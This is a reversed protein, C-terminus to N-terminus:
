NSESKKEWGLLPMNVNSVVTYNIGRRSLENSIMRLIYNTIMRWHPGQAKYSCICASDKILIAIDEDLPELVITLTQGEKLTSTDFRSFSIHELGLTECLIYLDEMNFHPDVSKAVFFAETNGEFERYGKNIYTHTTNVISKRSAKNGFIKGDMRFLPKTYILKKKDNVYLCFIENSKDICYWATGDPRFPLSELEEEKLANKLRKREDILALYVPEVEQLKSKVTELEKLYKEYTQSM